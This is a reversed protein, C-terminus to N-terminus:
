MGNDILYKHVVNIIDREKIHPYKNILENFLENEEKRLKEIKENLPNYLKNASEAQVEFGMLCKNIDEILKEKDTYDGIRDNIETLDSVTSKIDENITIVKNALLKLEDDTSKFDKRIRLAQELYKTDIM